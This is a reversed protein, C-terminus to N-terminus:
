NIPNSFILNEIWEFDKTNVTLLKAQHILATAAIISDGLSMKKTQRLIIATDGIESTLPLVQINAFLKILAAKEGDTLKHYGLVEIKSVISCVPQKQRLFNRLKQQEPLLSYILINSDLLYM